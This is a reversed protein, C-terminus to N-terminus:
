TIVKDEYQQTSTFQQQQRIIPKNTKNDKTFRGTTLLKNNDNSKMSKGM